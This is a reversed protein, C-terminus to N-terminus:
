SAYNDRKLSLPTARILELGKQTLVVDRPYYENLHGNLYQEKILFSVCEAAFVHQEYHATHGYGDLGTESLAPGAVLGLAEFDLSLPAPFHEALASFVRTVVRDFETANTLEM